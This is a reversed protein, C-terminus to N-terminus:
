WLVQTIVEEGSRAMPLLQLSHPCLYYCAGTRGLCHVCEWHQRSFSRLSCTATGYRLYLGYHKGVHCVEPGMEGHVM